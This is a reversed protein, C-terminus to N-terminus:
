SVRVGRQSELYLVTSGRLVVAQLNSYVEQYRPILNFPRDADPSDFFAFGSWAVDVDSPTIGGSKKVPFKNTADNYAAAQDNTFYGAVIPFGTYGYYRPVHTAYLGSYYRVSYPNEEDASRVSTADNVVRLPHNRPVLEEYSPPLLMPQDQVYKKFVVRKEKM